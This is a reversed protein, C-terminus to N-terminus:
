RQHRQVMNLKTRVTVDKHRVFLMCIFVLCCSKSLPIIDFTDVETYVSEKRWAFTLAVSPLSM